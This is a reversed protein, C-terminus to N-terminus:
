WRQMARSHVPHSTRPQIERFPLLVTPKPTIKPKSSKKEGGGQSKKSERKKSAKSRSSVISVSDFDFLGLAQELSCTLVGEKSLQALVDRAFEVSAVRMGREVAATM